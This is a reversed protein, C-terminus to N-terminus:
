QQRQCEMVRLRITDIEQAVKLQPNKIHNCVLSRADAAPVALVGEVTLGLQELFFPVSEHGSHGGSSIEDEIFTGGMDMAELRSVNKKLAALQADADDPKMTGNKKSRRIMEEILSFAYSHYCSLTGIDPCFEKRDYLEHHMGCAKRTAPNVVNMRELAQLLESDPIESLPRHRVDEFIPLVMQGQSANGAFESTEPSM